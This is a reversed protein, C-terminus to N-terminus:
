APNGKAITLGGDVMLASGTVFAAEDSALYLVALAVDEPEGIRGLPHQKIFAEMVQQRDAVTALYQQLIGTNTTGPVVCNVRIRPALEMAMARTMAAIAGKSTAYAIMDPYGLLGTPSATNIISGVVQAPLAGALMARAAAQSLLFVSRLNVQMVREWTDLSTTLVTGAPMIGANNFVIELHGFAEVTRDVLAQLAQPDAVDTPVFLATGGAERIEAAAREGEAVNVDALVVAAGERALVLAAARGIGSAAGTVIATKHAVRGLSM